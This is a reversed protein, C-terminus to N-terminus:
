RPSNPPVMDVGRDKLQKRVDQDIEQGLKRSWAQGVQMSQQGLEPLLQVFKAGVPTKYFKVIENLEDTNLKDAYIAATQDLLDQKRQAFKEPIARFAEKIEAAHDPKANVFANEIQQAILPVILDFQKATGMAALLEKAAAIRAPDTNAQAFGGVPAAMSLVAVVASALLLRAGFKQKQRM